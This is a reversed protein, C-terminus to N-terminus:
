AAAPISGEVDSIYFRMAGARWQTVRDFECSKRLCKPRASRRLSKARDARGLGVDAVKIDRRTHGPQNVGSVHHSM